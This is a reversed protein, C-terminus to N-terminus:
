TGRSISSSTSWGNMLCAERPNRTALVRQMDYTPAPGALSALVGKFFMLGFIVTFLENGDQRIADNM